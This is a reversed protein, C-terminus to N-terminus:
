EHKKVCEDCYLFCGLIVWVAQNDGCDMCAVAIGHLRQKM